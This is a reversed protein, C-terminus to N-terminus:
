PMPHRKFFKWMEDNASIDKSLPGVARKWADTDKDYVGGPWTHGSGEITCLVVEAGGKCEYHSVCKAAGNQYVVKTKDSCGDLRVWEQIYEPVSRCEWGPDRTRGGCHGGEYKAAPDATGHIHMVPVPRSPRCGDFSDHAANPAVAAIRDSLQCALRYSMLSGNSHGTAYVRRQDLTYKSAVDDIVKRIFGVDDVNGESAKSPGCCRGANFTGFVHGLISKGTGMPYAVLFGERDATVDMRSSNQQGEATGGGGHLNIVMPIPKGKQYSPPVHLLYTRREGGHELSYEKTKAPSRVDDTSAAEAASVGSHSARAAQRAERRARARTCDVTFQILVLCALVTLVRRVTASKRTPLM